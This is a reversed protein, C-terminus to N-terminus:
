SVPLSHKKLTEAPSLVRNRDRVLRCYGIFIFITIYMTFLYVIPVIAFDPRELLSIAIVPITFVVVVGSVATLAISLAVDGRALYSFFNSTAGSPCCVLIIILATTGINSIDISWVSIGNIDIPTM